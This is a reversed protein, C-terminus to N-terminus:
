QLCAGGALACRSRALVRVLAAFQDWRMRALKGRNFLFMCLKFNSVFSYVGVAFRALAVYVYM